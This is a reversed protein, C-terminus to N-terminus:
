PWSELPLNPQAVAPQLITPPPSWAAELDRWSFVCVLLSAALALCAAASVIRQQERVGVLDSRTGLQAVVREAFGPPCPSSVPAVHAATLRRWLADASGSADRNDNPEIM